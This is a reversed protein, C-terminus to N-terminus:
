LRRAVVVLGPVARGKELRVSKEVQAAIVFGTAALTTALYAPTHAFRLEAGLAIPEPGAHRQVTFALLGGSRLARAVAAFIPALDGLYLLVDAATVLDLRGEGAEALSDALDGTVLVDYLPRGADTKAAALAIMRPSLDVGGLWGVLPRLAAGCLGTGCGLDLARAAHVFGAELLAHRLDAPGTYGLGQTLHSDFRAAYDDFLTAVYAAPARDPRTGGALRAAALGAGHRDEPDLRLAEALALDARAEDGRAVSASALAVWAGAWDPALGLAQEFMEAAEDFDADDFAASGRRYRSEARPDRPVDTAQRPLPPLNTTLVTQRM